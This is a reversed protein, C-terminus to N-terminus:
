TQWSTVPYTNMQNIKNVSDLWKQESESGQGGWGVTSVSLKPRDSCFGGSFANDNVGGTKWSWKTEEGPYGKLKDREMWKKDVM